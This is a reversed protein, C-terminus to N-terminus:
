FLINDANQVSWMRVALRTLQPDSWWSGLKPTMTSEEDPDKPLVKDQCLPAPSRHAPQQPTQLSPLATGDTTIFILQASLHLELNVPLDGGRGEDRTM